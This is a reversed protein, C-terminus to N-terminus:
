TPNLQISVLCIVLPKFDILMCDSAVLTSQRQALKADAVRLSFCVRFAVNAFVPLPSAYKPDSWSEFLGWCHTIM